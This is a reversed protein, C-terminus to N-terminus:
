RARAVYIEEVRSLHKNATNKRAPSRVAYNSLRPMGTLAVDDIM